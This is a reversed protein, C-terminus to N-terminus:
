ADQIGRLGLRHFKTELLMVSWFTINGDGAQRIIVRIKIKKNEGVIADFGWYQVNKIGKRYQQVTGAHRLVVIALPVLKLKVIQEERRRERRGSFQLHHLGNSNFKIQRKFYPCFLLPNQLFILKARSKYIKFQSNLDEHDM